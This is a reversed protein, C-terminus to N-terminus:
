ISTPCRSRLGGALFVFVGSLGLLVMSARRRIPLAALPRRVGAGPDSLPDLDVDTPGPCRHLAPVQPLYWAWNATWPRSTPSRTTSRRGPGTPPIPSHPTRSPEVAAPTPRLFPLIWWLNLVVGLAGGATGSLLRVLGRWGYLMGALVPRLPGDVRRWWSCRPNFALFAIPIFAFGALGADDPGAGGAAGHRHAARPTGVSIINLPNPIRTLFFGNM